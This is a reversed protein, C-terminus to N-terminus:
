KNLEEDCYDGHHWYDKREEEQGGGRGPLAGIAAPLRRRRWAQREEAVEMEQAAQRVPREPREGRRVARDHEQAEAAHGGDDRGRRGGRLLGHLGAVEGERAPWHQQHGLAEEVAAAVDAERGVALVPALRAAHAREVEETRAADGGEAVDPLLLDGGLRRRAARDVQAVDEDAVGPGDDRARREAVPVVPEVAVLPSLLSKWSSTRADGIRSDPPHVREGPQLALRPARELREIAQELPDDRVVPAPTGTAPLNKSVALDVVVPIEHVLHVLVGPEPEVRVVDLCDNHYAEEVGRHQSPGHRLEDVVRVLHPLGLVLDAAGGAVYGLVVEVPHRVELGDDALGHPQVGRRREQYQYGALRRLVGLQQAVVDRRARPQHDVGPGDAPVGRRPLARLPEDVRGHIVAPHPQVEPEHREGVHQVMHM